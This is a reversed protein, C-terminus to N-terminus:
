LFAVTTKLSTVITQFKIIFVMFHISKGSDFVQQHAILYDLLKKRGEVAACHFLTQNFRPSIFKFTDQNAAFQRIIFEENSGEKMM